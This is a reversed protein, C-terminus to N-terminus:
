RNSKNEDNQAWDRDNSDRDNSDVDIKKLLLQLTSHRKKAQETQFGSIRGIRLECRGKNKLQFYAGKTTADFGNWRYCM